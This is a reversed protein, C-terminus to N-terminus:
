QLFWMRQQAFSLPYAAPDTPDVVARRPIVTHSTAAPLGSDSSRKEQLRKMLLARKEPSLGAIRDTLNDPM